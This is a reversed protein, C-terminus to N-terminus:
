WKYCGQIARQMPLVVEMFFLNSSHTYKKWPLGENTQTGSMSKATIHLFHLRCDVWKEPPHIFFGAESDALTCFRLARILKIQDSIYVVNSQLFSHMQTEHCPRSCTRVRHRIWLAGIWTIPSEPIAVGRTLLPRTHQTHPPPFVPVTYHM